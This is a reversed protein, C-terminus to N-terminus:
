DALEGRLVSNFAGLYAIMGSSILVDGSLNNYTITLQESAAKWRAKEGGLGNILQTARELKAKCDAVKAELDAKKDQQFKLDARLGNVKDEVVKLEGEKIKLQADVENFEEQAIALEAKKPRVMLDVRYYKEMAVCWMALNGVTSSVNAKLDAPKFREQTIVPVLKDIIDSPINEYDYNLLKSLFDAGSIMTMTTPWYDTVRQQTQPDLKKQPALGFLICVASLVMRIDASPSKMQKIFVVDNKGISNLAKKAEEVVPMAEALASECETKIANAADATVQASAKEKAVAEKIVEADVTQKEVIVTQREVEESSAILEPQMAELEIQMKGVDQETKILCNYGNEYRNKLGMIEDRKQALLTKFTTILELYSTPTVYYHRKQEELFKISGQTTSTHFQQVM